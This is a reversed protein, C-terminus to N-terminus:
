STVHYSSIDQIPKNLFVLNKFSGHVSFPTSMARGQHFSPKRTPLPLNDNRSKKVTTPNNLFNQVLLLPWLEPPADLLHQLLNISRLEPKIHGPSHYNNEWSQARNNQCPFTCQLRRSGSPLHMIRNSSFNRAEFLFQCRLLNHSCSFKAGSPWQSIMHTDIPLTFVSM